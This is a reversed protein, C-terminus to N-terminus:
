LVESLAVPRGTDVSRQAAVCLAVSWLGDTGTTVLPTQDRIASTVLAIQDQLEFVEGTIKAIAITEVENESGSIGKLFFSPHKTRDMAGSWGAWLAGSTGTVKVTQHHEFASLTQSVVGYEGGAFRIISSFNDQLEPHGVQRSNAVAFVSEPEGASSLYWRVFDFFHIPEELIWNGVRQIDYRWGGAGQRYPRRSLEVLVYQPKGIYGSEVLEKVKGWLSSLRLEHGITLLRDHEAALRILDRCHEVSLCMPKELLVHKGSEIALSAVEYHLFSPLVIDVVDVDQRALLQRFDAYVDVEPLSQRAAAASAATSTAVAM